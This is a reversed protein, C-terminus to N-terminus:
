PHMTYNMLRARHRAYAAAPLSKTLLDSANQTTDIHEVELEGTFVLERVKFYRRDVHRSRHCSKRDRALEVAGSNDVYLKTPSLQPLGMENLLARTHVVELACTSAAIIEAETSSMSMCMQRKSSYIVVAGAMMLGFGTTSHGVSWDSDSESTLTGADVADGDFTIGDSATQALYVICDDACEDLEPIAFTLARALRSITYCTDVRVCPSTYIMAGVKGMYGKVLQPNLPQERAHAKEYAKQLKETSPLAVRGRSRWDPVYKDAMKIIYAESTIKVRTPSEFEINMNLFHRPKEDLTLNFKAKLRALDADALAGANDICWSDDVFLGLDLRSGDSYVKYYYCPDKESQSMGVGNDADTLFGHMTQYWVRPATTRGYCNGISEYVIPVGRRDCTRFGDPPRVYRRRGTISKGQLFAASVDFTRFRMPALKSGADRQKAARVVGAAILLKLTNHRVTPAFTQEAPLGMQKDVVTEMDGRVLSRAKRKLLQGLENYKNKLVWMMDVVESARRKTPNWTPLSDEPVDRFIDYRSMNTMEDVCAQWWEARDPGSMAQKYTPHDATNRNAAAVKLATARTEYYAEAIPHVAGMIGRAELMGEDDLELYRDMIGQLLEGADNEDISQDLGALGVSVSIRRLNAFPEIVSGVAALWGATSPKPSLLAEALARNLESTFNEASKTKFQGDGFEGVIPAHTGHPHNCVLPGLRERVQEIVNASCLLQTTKQTAAGTRCQDFNVTLDGHRQSFAVMEPLKWLSAHDERGAIAFPSNADRGVPNEFIFRGGHGTVATAIAIAHKAIANARTVSVPVNGSADPIGSPYTLNRLPPPGPQVYRAPSWTSCPITALVGLCEPKSALEVLRNAVTPSALDHEYGGRTTDINVVYTEAASLSRTWYAFDGDRAPGSCLYIFYSGRHAEDLSLIQTGSAWGGPKFLAMAAFVAKSVLGAPRARQAQTYKAARRLPRQTSAAPSAGAPVQRRPPPPARPSVPARPPPPPPPPAAVGRPSPAGGAADGDVVEAADGDAEAMVPHSDGAVLPAPEIGDLISGREVGVLESEDVRAAAPDYEDSFEPVCEQWGQSHLTLGPLATEVFRCHVSVHMRKTAPDYCYYGSQNEARGLHVCRVAQNSMKTIRDFVKAYVVCGFVRFHSASPKRGTFLSLACNNPDGKLPLTNRVDVSQRLAYWAYNRTLKSKDLLKVTEEGMTRWQREMEGNSRPTNPAITTYRAKFRDRVVARVKASLHSRANDTHIWSVKVGKSECYVHYDCLASAISEDTEDRLLKVWNHHSFHDHIGFVKLQGGHVHKVGMSFVDYSTLAGPKTALPLSRNSPVAPSVARLCSECPADTVAASWAEDVDSTCRHWNRLTRVHAHNGRAHVIAGPLRKVSRAGRAVVFASNVDCEAPPVVLIGVNLIPVATKDPLTLQSAEHGAGVIVGIGEDRALKGLSILNHACDPMVLAERLLVSRRAGAKTRLTRVVDCRLEPVVTGNATNVALHNARVSGPVANKTDIVVHIAAGTDGVDISEGKTVGLALRLQKADTGNLFAPLPASNTMKIGVDDIFFRAREGIEGPVYNAGRRAFQYIQTSQVHAAQAAVGVDGAVDGTTPISQSNVGNLVLFFCFLVSATGFAVGARRRIANQDVLSAAGRALRMLLTTLAAIAGTEALTMCVYLFATIWVFDVFGMDRRPPPEWSSDAGTALAFTASVSGGTVLTLVNLVVIQAGGVGLALVTCMLVLMLLVGSAVVVHQAQRIFSPVLPEVLAPLETRGLKTVGSGAVPAVATPEPAVSPVAPAVPAVALESTPLPSRRTLEAALRTQNAATFVSECCPEDCLEACAENADPSPRTGVGVGAGDDGIGDGDDLATTGRVPTSYIPENAATSPPEGARPEGYAFLPDDDAALARVIADTIPDGDLDTPANNAVVPSLPSLPGADVDIFGYGSEDVDRTDSDLEDGILMHVPAGGFLDVLMDDLGATAVAALAGNVQPKLPKYPKNLRAANAKKSAEVRGRAELNDYTKQNIPGEYGPARYCPEGPKFEDHNFDCMGESCLQGDPLKLGNKRTGNKAGGNRAAGTKANAGAPNSKFAAAVIAKVEKKTIGNGNGNATDTQGPIAAMASPKIKLDYASEVITQTEAIIYDVDDFKSAAKASRILSRGDSALGSPLQEVIFQSLGVGDLPARKHPNVRDTFTNIRKAWMQPPVNDTVKNDRMNEYATDYFKTDYESGAESKKALMEKFMALGDPIPEGDADKVIAGSEDKTPCKARLTKLLIPANAKLARELKAAVREKLDIMRLELEAKNQENTAVIEM